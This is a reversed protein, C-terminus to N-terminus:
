KPVDNTASIDAATMEMQGAKLALKLKTCMSGSNM